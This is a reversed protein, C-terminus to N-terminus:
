SADCDRRFRHSILLEILCGSINITAKATPIQEYIRLVPLYSENVVKEVITRDQDLPQYFHLLNAWFLGKAQKKPSDKKEM